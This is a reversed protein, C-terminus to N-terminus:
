RKVIKRYLKRIYGLKDIKRIITKIKETVSKDKSDLKDFYKKKDEFYKNSLDFPSIEMSEFLRYDRYFIRNKRDIVEGSNFCNYSWPYKGLLDQYNRELDKAYEEKIKYELASKDKIYFGIIPVDANKDYGSFHFFYLPSENNVYLINKKKSLRRNSVNWSAMNYGPDKLIHVNFIAPALDMWKQDTFIGNPIDDYCYLNLREAWWKIVKKSEEGRRVALFGLNYVGHKLAALESYNIGFLEKDPATLHPTLVVEHEDLIKSLNDLSNYVKVDPDIYVIKDDKENELLYEFLKGKVSTSAEVISHKFIFMDFNEYGLDKALIIKDVNKYCKEDLVDPIEREVLCIYFKVKPNYKKLSEGLTLAKPMYNM